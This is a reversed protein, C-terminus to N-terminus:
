VAPQDLGDALDSVFPWVDVIERALGEGNGVSCQNARLDIWRLADELADDPVAEQSSNM